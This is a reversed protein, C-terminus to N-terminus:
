RIILTLGTKTTMAEPTNGYRGLNVRRGNPKLENKYPSKPDGTDLAPSDEPEHIDAALLTPASAATYYYHGGTLTRCSAYVEATTAFLPDDDVCGVGIDLTGGADALRNTAGGFMTYTVHATAGEKVRLDAPSIDGCTNGSFNAFFISDKVNATGARVNLGATSYHGEYLNGAFTCNEVAVTSGETVDVVLVGGEYDENSDTNARTYLVENGVWACNRFVSEGCNGRLNVLGGVDTGLISGSLAVNARFDCREVTVPTANVALASGWCGSRGSHAAFPATGFALGNSTFLCDTVWAQKLSSLSLAGAGGNTGREYSRAIVCNVVAATTSSASGAISLSRGSVAPGSSGSDYTGNGDFVCNTVTINGAGSKLLGHQYGKTFFFGDVVVGKANNFTLCDYRGQGDLQSKAAKAREAPTNESGAFGGRITVDAAPSITEASTGVAEDGAYWLENTEAALLKIAARFDTYADTWCSGNNRGHAGVRVHIIGAGGGKGVHSPVVLGQDTPVTVEKTVVTDDVGDASAIVKIKFTAGPSPYIFAFAGPEDGSKVANFVNTSTFDDGTGVLVSVTASFGAEGGLLVSVFPQTENNPYAVHIDDATFEPKRAQGGVTFALIVTGSGGDGGDSSKKPTSDYGGGGGGAGFGDDGSGAKDLECGKVGDGAHTGGVGPDCTGSGIGIGGGGGGGSGYVEAVGTISNTVGEGGDGSRLTTANQGPTLAGGGGGTGGNVNNGAGTGGYWGQESTYYESTQYKITKAGSGGGCGIFVTGNNKSPEGSADGADSGGGGGGFATTTSGGITLSSSSGYFAGRLQPEAATRNSSGGDASKAIGGKGVSVTATSGAVCLTPTTLDIVGGGGGGGGKFGGGAGGGGVILVEQLTMNQNFIVSVASATNTFIYVVRDGVWNTRVSDDAAITVYDDVYGFASNSAGLVSALVAGFALGRRSCSLFRSLSM